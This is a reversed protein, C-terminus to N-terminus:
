PTECFHRAQRERLNMHRAIQPVGYLLDCSADAVQQEHPETVTTEVM